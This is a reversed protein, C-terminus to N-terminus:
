CQNNLDLNLDNNNVDCVISLNKESGKENYVGVYQGFVYELRCSEPLDCELLYVTPILGLILNFFSLIFLNM